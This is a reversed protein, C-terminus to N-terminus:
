ICALTEKISFRFIMILAEAPTCPRKFAFYCFGSCRAKLYYAELLCRHESGLSGKGAREEVVLCCVEPKRGLTQTM